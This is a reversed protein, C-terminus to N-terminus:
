GEVGPGPGAAEVAPEDDDSGVLFALGVALFAGVTIASDAVNFAPFFDLDFWDVVAGDLLGDGRFVRDVLNGMAGGGVLGLALSEWRGPDRRVAAVILVGTAVAVLAIISGAGELIGFAAGTNRVYRLQLVGDVLVIPDGPLTAVVWWKTLQDVVLVAGAAVLAITRGSM